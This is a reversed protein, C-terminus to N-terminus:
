FVRETENLLGTEFLSTTTSVILRRRASYNIYAVTGAIVIVVTAVGVILMKQWTNM